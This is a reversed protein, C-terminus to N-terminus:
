PKATRQAILIGGIVLALALAHSIHFDEGIMVVALFTGFIPVLNIFLGAANAGLMEVGRIFFAQALISPFIVTYLAVAIGQSTVPFQAQGVIIEFIIAPISALLAGCILCFLFSMWHIDPKTKLAVSYGAYCLVAILMLLDGFNLRLALLNDMSGNAIVLVVGLLTLGYGVIQQRKIAMSFLVLNAIFIVLPMAAQVITANIASTYHLASYLLINFTAFGIAGMALLYFLRPKISAWDRRLHHRAFYAIILFACSWRVFTLVMPSVHGIALKGAVANGGWFVATLTLLLYPQSIFWTFPSRNEVPFNSKPKM